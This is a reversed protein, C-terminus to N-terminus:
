KWVMSKLATTKCRSLWGPSSLLSCFEGGRFADYDRCEGRSIKDGVLLADSRTKGNKCPHRAIATRTKRINIGWVSKIRGTYGCKTRITTGNNRKARPHTSWRRVPRRPEISGGNAIRIERRNSRNSYSQFHFARRLVIGYTASVGHSKRMGVARILDRPLVDFTSLTKSGVNVTM